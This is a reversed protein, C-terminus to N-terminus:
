PCNMDHSNGSAAIIEHPMQRNQFMTYVLNLISFRKSVWDPRVNLMSTAAYVTTLAAQQDGSTFLQEIAGGPTSLSVLEKALEDRPKAPPYVKVIVTTM